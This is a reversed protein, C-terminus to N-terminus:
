TPERYKKINSDLKPKGQSTRTVRFTLNGKCTGSCALLKKSPPIRVVVGSTKPQLMSSISRPPAPGGTCKRAIQKTRAMNVLGQGVRFRHFHVLQSTDVCDHSWLEILKSSPAAALM